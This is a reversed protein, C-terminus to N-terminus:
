GDQADETLIQYILYAVPDGTTQFIQWFGEPEM